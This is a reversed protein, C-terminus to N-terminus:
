TKPKYIENESLEKKCCKAFTGIKLPDKTMTQSVSIKKRLAYPLFKKGGQSYIKIPFLFCLAGSVLPFLAPCYNNSHFVHSGENTQRLSAVADILLNVM